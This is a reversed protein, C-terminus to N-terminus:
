GLQSRQTLRLYRREAFRDSRFALVEVVEGTTGCVLFPRQRNSVSRVLLGSIQMKPEGNLDYAIRIQTEEGRMDIALCVRDIPARPDSWYLDVLNLQGLIILGARHLVRIDLRLHDELAKWPLSPSVDPGLGVDLWLGSQLFPGLSAGIPRRHSHVRGQMGLLGAETGLLDERAAAAEERRDTRARRERAARRAARAESLAERAAQAQAKARERDLLIGAEFSEGPGVAKLWAMLVAAPTQVCGKRKLLGAVVVHRLRDFHVKQRYGPNAYGPKSVVMGEHFYVTDILAGSAPCIYALPRVNATGGFSLAFTFVQSFGEGELVFICIRNEITCTVDGIGQVHTSLVGPNSVLDWLLRIPFNDTKSWYPAPPPTLIM